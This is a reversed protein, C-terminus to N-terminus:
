KMSGAAARMIARGTETEGTFAIKDIGPHEAMYAGVTAGRGTIVNVVGPPIGAELALEALRLATLPTASAPKLLLTCGAALAPARGRRMWRPRAPRLWPPWCKM